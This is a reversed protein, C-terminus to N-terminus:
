YNERIYAYTNDFLPGTLPLAYKKLIVRIEKRVTRDGAQTENWGTYSVERVIADIDRVLDSVVVPTNAPKYEEVIQTLAGIHPDLLAGAASDLEGAAELREAQVFTRALELAKKLFEISDDANRIAQTRLKEIQAALSHYVPHPHEELRRRIRAEITDFVEGVTIPEPAVVPAPFLGEDALKRMAEIADPDVVVEELGTGTVTVSDMHGHVLAITKGGLRHWLLENHAKTPKIAEYVQALWRYDGRHTDLVEHPDLFEWLTEVAIFDRAFADRAEREVLRERAESLTEFTPSTRDIGDFRPSLCAEIAAVFEEALEDTSVPRKGGTDPDAAKLAHAIQQGLGIYDVVLGHRKEQGTNPHQFRRNTRTIAQFQTHRRLPRDLYMVQEIPADFGTLLKATVILFALPDDPDNFRRKVAAEQDRTLAFAAWEPPEEKSTGVTMVVA